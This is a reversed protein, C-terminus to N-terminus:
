LAELHAHIATFSALGVLQELDEVGFEEEIVAILTVGALSDWKSTNSQCATLVQEQSLTPFVDQFCHVLRETLNQYNKSTSKFQVQHHLPLCHSQFQEKSLWVPGTKIPEGHLSSLFDQLPQNKETAQFEFCIYKMGFHEFITLITQICQYEIRRSFARCSLVWTHIYIAYGQMAQIVSIKGLPGFRDKYNVVVTIAHSYGDYQAWDEPSRRIGNLNFQNVKNVLQLVRPDNLSPNFDFTVTADLSALFAEPDAQLQQQLEQGQRISDLRLADEPVADTAFMARLGNLPTPFLICHLRPHVAAVEALEMPNDDIFVVDSADINWTALIRTISESKARWHVELPFLHKPSLLLDPRQLAEQVVNPSNKSAIALLVGRQGLEELCRQYSAYPDTAWSVGNPGDDGVIGDWLTGDLDTILGKM